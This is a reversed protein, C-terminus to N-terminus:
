GKVDYRKYYGFYTPAKIYHWSSRDLVYRRVEHESVISDRMFKVTPYDITIDHELFLYTQTMDIFDNRHGYNYVENVRERMSRLNDEPSSM